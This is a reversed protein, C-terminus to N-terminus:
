EDIFDELGLVNIFADLLQKNRANIDYKNFSDIEQSTYGKCYYNSRFWRENDNIPIYDICLCKTINFKSDRYIRYKEQKNNLKSNESKSLLTLNGIDNVMPDDLHQQSCIHEITISKASLDESFINPNFKSELMCLFPKVKRRGYKLTDMVSYDKKIFLPQLLSKHFTDAQSQNGVPEFMYRYFLYNIATKKDLKHKNVVMLFAPIFNGNNVMKLPNFAPDNLIIYGKDLMQATKMLFTDINTIKDICESINSTKIIQNYEFLYLSWSLITEPTNNKSKNVFVTALKDIKTMMEQWLLTTKQEDEGMRIIKAKLLDLQNLVLGKGNVDNFYQPADKRDIYIVNVYVREWLYDLWAQPDFVPKSLIFERVQNIAESITFLDYSEELITSKFCENWIPISHQLRLQDEKGTRELFFREYYKKNAIMKSLVIGLIFCSTVRQQGDAMEYINKNPDEGICINNGFVFYKNTDSYADYFDKLFVQLPSTKIDKRVTTWAYERQYDNPIIIPYDAYNNLFQGFKLSDSKRPERDIIM